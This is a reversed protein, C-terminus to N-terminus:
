GKNNSYIKQGHPYFTSASTTSQGAFTSNHCKLSLDDRNLLHYFENFKLTCEARTFCIILRFDSGLGDVVYDIIESDKVVEGSAKLDDTLVQIKISYEQM